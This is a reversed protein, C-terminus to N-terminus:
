QESNIEEEIMLIASEVESLIETLKDQLLANNFDSLTFGNKIRTNQVLLTVFETSLKVEVDPQTWAQIAKEYDIIDALPRYFYEWYDEYLHKRVEFLEKYKFDIQLLSFKIKENSLSSLKGSNILENLYLLSPNHADWYLVNMLHAYYDEIGSVQRLPDPDRLIILSQTKSKRREIINKLEAEDQKLDSVLNELHIIEDQRKEQNNQIANLQIAILIGIVM